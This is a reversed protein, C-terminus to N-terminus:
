AAKIKKNIKRYFQFCLKFVSPFPDKLSIKFVSKDFDPITKDKHFFNHIYLKLAADADVIRIPNSEVKPLDIKLGSLCALYPFNVGAALSGLVTAWYRPNMEIVKIHKEEEDYRLDFHVVGSWNLKAIIEKVLNYTEDDYLFDLSGTPEFDIIDTIIKKQITSALIKGDECLVSCDIDYGGIFSQVIYDPHDHQANIYNHLDDPNNFYRIGFGGSGIIPKILVPFTLSSGTINANYFLTPPHPLHHSFLWGALLWKNCARDFTETQPLAVLSTLPSLTDRHLSLLRITPEDVPLVIDIKYKKIIDIISSLRREDGEDNPFSFFRKTHRSYRVRGYPDNSLIYVIIDKMEGLCRLVPLAIQSEGDPILVSIHEINRM